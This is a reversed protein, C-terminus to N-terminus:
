AGPPRLFIADDARLPVLPVGDASVWSELEALLDGCVRDQQGDGCSVEIGLAGDARDVARADIRRAALLALVQERDAVRAVEIEVIEM